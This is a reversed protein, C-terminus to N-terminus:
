HYVFNSFSPSLLSSLPISVPKTHTTSLSDTTRPTVVTPAVLAAQSLVEVVALDMGAKPTVRPVIAM